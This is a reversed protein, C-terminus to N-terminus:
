KEELNIANRQRCRGAPAETQSGRRYMMASIYRFSAEIMRRVRGGVLCLPLRKRCLLAWSSLVAFSPTSADKTQPTSGKQILKQSGGPM